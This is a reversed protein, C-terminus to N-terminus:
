IVLECAHPQTCQIHMHNSIFTHPIRLHFEKLPPLIYFGFFFNLNESFPYFSLKPQSDFNIEIEFSLVSKVTPITERFRAVGDFKTTNLSLRFKVNKSVGLTVLSVQCM